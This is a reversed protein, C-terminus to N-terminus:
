RRSSSRAPMAPSNSRLAPWCLAWVWGAPRPSPVWSPASGSIDNPAQEVIAATFASSAAGTAVGQVVRAAIVWGISPARVFIVM